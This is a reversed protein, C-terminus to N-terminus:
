EELGKDAVEVLKMPEGGLLLQKAERLDGVDPVVFDGGFLTEGGSMPQGKGRLSSADKRVEVMSEAALEKAL